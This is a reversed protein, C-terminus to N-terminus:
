GRHHGQGDLFPSMWRDGCRGPQIQMYGTTSLKWINKLGVQSKALLTIHGTSRDKNAEREKVDHVLYGEMGFIPKIEQRKCEREFEVHDSCEGHNTTALATQGLEVARAVMM